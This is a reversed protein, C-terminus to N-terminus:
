ISNVVDIMKQRVFDNPADQIMNQMEMRFGDGNSYGNGRSTYRGMSDRHRAYSNNYPMRPMSRYSNDMYSNSYGGEEEHFEIIKCVNKLAHSLKDVIELSNADLKEKTGYEKLEKCLLDKLAYLKDM